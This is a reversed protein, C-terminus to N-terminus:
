IATHQLELDQINKKAGVTQITSQITDLNQTTQFKMINMNTKKLYNKLRGICKEKKKM